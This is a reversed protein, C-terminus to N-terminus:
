ADQLETYLNLFLSHWASFWQLNDRFMDSIMRSNKELLDVVEQKLANVRENMETDDIDTNSKWEAIQKLAVDKDDFREMMQKVVMSSFLDVLTQEIIDDLQEILVENDM